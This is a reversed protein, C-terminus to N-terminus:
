PSHSNEVMEEWVVREAEPDIRVVRADAKQDVEESSLPAEVEDITVAQVEIVKVWGVRQGELGPARVRVLNATAGHAELTVYLDDSNLRSQKTETVTVVCGTLELAVQVMTAIHEKFAPDDAAEHADATQVVMTWTATVAGVDATTGQPLTGDKIRRTHVYLDSSTGLVDQRSEDRAHSPPGGRLPSFPPSPISQYGAINHNPLFEGRDWTGDYIVKDGHKLKGKGHKLGEHWGGVYTFEADHLRGYGHYRNQQWEGEYVLRNGRFLKGKGHKMGEKWDGKFTYEADWYTGRGSYKGNEWGGDYRTGDPHTVYGHGHKQGQSNKTGVFKPVFPVDGVNLLPPAGSNDRAM